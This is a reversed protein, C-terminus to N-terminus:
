SGPRSSLFLRKRCTRSGSLIQQSLFWCLFRYGKFIMSNFSVVIEFYFIHMGFALSIYMSRTAFLKESSRRPPLKEENLDIVVNPMLRSSLIPRLLIQRDILMEKSAEPDM